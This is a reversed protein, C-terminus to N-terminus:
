ELWCMTTSNTFIVYGNYKPLIQQWGNAKTCISSGGSSWYLQLYWKVKHEFSTQFFDTWYGTLPLLTFVAFMNMYIFCVIHSLTNLPCIWDRMPIKKRFKPFAFKSSNKLTHWYSNCLKLSRCKCFQKLKRYFFIYLCIKGKCIFVTKCMQRNQFNNYSLYTREHLVIVIEILWKLCIIIAIRVSPGKGIM